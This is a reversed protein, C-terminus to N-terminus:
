FVLGGAVLLRHRKDQTSSTQHNLPSFKSGFRPKPADDVMHHFGNDLAIAPPKVKAVNSVRNKVGQM